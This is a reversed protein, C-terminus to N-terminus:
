NGNTSWHWPESPLNYFGFRSANAALWQFGASGRSRILSGNHTFDIALGQEHMSQGPRATPPSCQSAPMEYVAYDSTGCNSRRVALQGSSDRYGSGSLSVGDGDAANLMAALQDAIQSSVTIGRVTSLSVNGGSPARRVGAPASPAGSSPRQAALRAALAREEVVIQNSLGEDLQALSQAEALRADLRRDIDAVVRAQQDRTADLESLQSEVAARQDAAEQSAAEAEIRMGELDQRAGELQDALDLDRGARLDLLAQKQAAETANAAELVAWADDAPRNIYADVALEALRGELEAIEAQTAEEAARAQAVAAEAADSARRADAVKAEQASVNAELADLAAGVEADTAQLVDLDGVLRQREARVEERRARPDSGSGATAPGAVLLAVLAVAGAKAFPQWRTRGM